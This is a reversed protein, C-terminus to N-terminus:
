LADAGRSTETTWALSELYSEALVPLPIESLALRDLDAHEYALVADLLSRMAGPGGGLARTLEPGLLPLQEVLTSASLDLSEALGDLLGLTFAIDPRIPGTRRAVRECTGARVLAAIVDAVAGNTPTMSMLVLWARLRILGVMILADGISSVPRSLGASASNAIRLLRYTLAPDRRVAESVEGPSIDPDSLLGLINLAQAQAPGLTRASLTEPHGLHYGQFLDFGEDVCRRMMKNDEIKEALLRVDYPRCLGITELVEDWELALVDIKVIDALEVLPQAGDTWVFDDLVIQYGMGSLRRVGAIAEADRDITELVELGAADPGFPLPLEGTIFRRSLNVFGRRGALLDAIDFESFAALVTASTAGDGDDSAFRMASANRFLLEYGYLDGDASQIAQRGVHVTAWPETKM